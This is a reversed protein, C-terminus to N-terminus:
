IFNFWISVSYKSQVVGTSPTTLKIVTALNIQDQPMLILNRGSFDIDTTIGGNCLEIDFFTKLDTSYYTQLPFGVVGIIDSSGQMVNSNQMYLRCSNDSNKVIHGGNEIWAIGQLAILQVPRYVKFLGNESDEQVGAGYMASVISFHQQYIRNAM